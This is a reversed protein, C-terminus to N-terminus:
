ITPRPNTKKTKLIKQYLEPDTISLDFKDLDVDYDAKFNDAFRLKAEAHNNGFVLGNFNYGSRKLKEGLWHNANLAVIFLFAIELFLQDFNASINGLTIFAFNILLLAFFEQWMKHYLFWLGSFFFAPYSFGEKLLVVDEIKGERNEKTLVSYLKMTSKKGGGM